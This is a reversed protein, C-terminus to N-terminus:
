TATPYSYDDALIRECAGLFHPQMLLDASAMSKAFLAACRRTKAGTFSAEGFPVRSLYPELDANFRDLVGQELMDAIIVGGDRRLVDVVQDIAASSPLTVISPPSAPQAPMEILIRNRKRFRM